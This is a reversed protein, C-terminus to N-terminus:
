RHVRVQAIRDEPTFVLDIAWWRVCPTGVTPRIAVLVRSTVRNGGNESRVRGAGVCEMDELYVSFSGGSMRLPRLVDHARRGPTDATLWWADRSSAQRSTMTWTRRPTSVTVWDAWLGSVGAPDGTSAFSYFAGATGGAEESGLPVRGAGASPDEESASPSPRTEGSGDPWAESSGDVARRPAAPDEGDASVVAWLALGVVVVVLTATRVPHRSGDTGGELVDGGSGLAKDDRVAGGWDARRSSAIRGSAGALGDHRLRPGRLHARALCDGLEVSCVLSSRPGQHPPPRSQVRLSGAAHRARSGVWTAPGMAPAM